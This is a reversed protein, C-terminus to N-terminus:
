QHRAPPDRRRHGALGEGPRLRSSHRSMRSAAPRHEGRSAADRRGGVHELLRGVAGPFLVQVGELIRQAVM